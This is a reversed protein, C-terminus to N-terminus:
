LDVGPIKVEQAAMRQEWTEDPDAEGQPDVPKTVAARAEAAAFAARLGAVDDVGELRVALEAAEGYTLKSLQQDVEDESIGDEILREKANALVEWKQLKAEATPPMVPLIVDFRGPRRIAPDFDELHNTALIYVLKRRDHLAAIKPLMATTLFRSELEGLARERVLEDFEDLLVVIQDCFRLRGFLADAQAHVKDLGDRTLHSPDVHLLPWGLSDAVTRALDTKSTGPPGYLIASINVDSAFSLGDRVKNRGDVLPQLFHTEFLQKFSHEAGNTDVPSDLFDALWPPEAPEPKTDEYAADIYEFVDVRTADGVMRSLEFCFHFVSATPWSEPESKKGHHESSWGHIRGDELPVRRTELAWAAARLKSLHPFLFPRLRLESLLQVLLEYDYCYAYGLTPYLFLPRSRPWTGDEDRQGIFFQDIAHQLLRRQRPTMRDLPSLVSATLVGYALEFFDADPSDAAILMSEEYLHDWNWDTAEKRPAVSLSDWAALSKVAKHTLFSTPPYASIYIGGEEEVM